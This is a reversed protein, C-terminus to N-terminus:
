VNDSKGFSSLYIQSSNSNYGNNLSGGSSGMTNVSNNFGNKDSGSGSNNSLQFHYASNQVSTWSGDEKSKIYLPQEVTRNNDCGGFSIKDCHGIKPLRNRKMTGGGILSGGMGIVFNGGGVINTCSSAGVTTTTGNNGIAPGGNNNNPPLVSASSSITRNLNNIADMKNEIINMKTIKNNSHTPYNMTDSYSFKHGDVNYHCSTPASYICNKNNNHFNSSFINANKVLNTTAYAGCSDYMPSTPNKFSSCGAVEAYDPMNLPTLSFFLFLFVFTCKTHSYYISVNKNNNITKRYILLPKWLSVLLM